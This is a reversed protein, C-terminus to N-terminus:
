ISVGQEWRHNHGKYPCVKVKIQVGGVMREHEIFGHTDEQYLGSWIGSCYSICEWDPITIKQAIRKTKNIRWQVKEVPQNPVTSLSEYQSTKKLM